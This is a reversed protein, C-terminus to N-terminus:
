NDMGLDEHLNQENWAHNLAEHTIEDAMKFSAM